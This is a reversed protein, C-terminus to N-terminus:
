ATGKPDVKRLMEEAHAAKAEEEKKELEEEYCDAHMHIETGNFDRGVVVYDRETEDTYVVHDCGRCISMQPMTKEEEKIIPFSTVL